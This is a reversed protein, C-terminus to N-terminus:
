IALWQNLENRRVLLLGERSGEIEGIENGDNDWAKSGGASEYGGTCGSYNAMFVAMKYKKAYECLNRTDADYGGPTILVSVIYISTRNNFADEAHKPNNTYACIAFSIIENNDILLPNTNGPIFYKDEGEHLYRKTYVEIPGKPPIIFEGIAIGNQLLLPAGVIATINGDRCVKRLEQIRNDNCSFVSSKATAPEYGTLSLEPFVIYNASAKSADAIYEIHKELNVSIDDKVASIQALAITTSAM